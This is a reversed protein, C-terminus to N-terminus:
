LFYHHKYNGLICFFCRLDKFTYVFSVSINKMIAEAIDMTIEM